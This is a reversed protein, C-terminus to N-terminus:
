LPPHGRTIHREPHARGLKPLGAVGEDIENGRMEVGNGVTGDRGALRRVCESGQKAPISRQRFITFVGVRKQTRRSREQEIMRQEVTM